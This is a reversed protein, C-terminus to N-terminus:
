WGLLASELDNSKVIEEETFQRNMRKSNNSTYNYGQINVIRSSNKTYINRKAFEEREKDRKLKKDLIVTM